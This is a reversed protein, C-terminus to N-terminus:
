GKTVMAKGTRGDMRLSCPREPRVHVCHATREVEPQQALWDWDVWGTSSGHQVKLYGVHMSVLNHFFHTGQSADVRFHELDAEVIARAESIDAWAVPIGLFRDRSGWRGPGILVYSRGIDRMKRNLEALEHQIAVTETPNFRDRDVYIFDALGETIGNGLGARTYLVVEGRSVEGVDPVDVEAHDVSLPRIQLPFFTPRRGPGPHPLVAFEMEVPGGMAGEGIVLLDQLLEALPFANYKLINAFSVIRPGRRDFPGDILQDNQFDWVSAVAQLTGHQEATRLDLNELTGDEGALLAQQGADLRIAWFDRQTGRVLDEQALLEMRPYRPCFRYVRNGEVVAKGLGLAVTAIGDAPRSPGTPYFNYSQAVGSVTPYYYNGHFDGAIEQIVVAMKEEEIHFKSGQIYERSEREFVCAFVLKIASQLFESRAQTDPHQNPLMYTKYVGAFPCSQSDELLGSSRVALPSRVHEVFWNLREILLPSLDGALFTARIADDTLGVIDRGIHNRELFEDFEATGVIATAPLTVDINPFRRRYDLTALLTNLFALGRGKGGLGGERLRVIQERELHKWTAPDVVRGRNKAREIEEFVDILFRRLHGPNAFDQVKMPQLKKAFAIEGHALLWASFHNHRAHYLVSDEPVKALLEMFNAMTTARACEPGKETRFVFDGFGLQEVIFDRLEALLTHSEKHLFHAGLAHAKDQNSKDLSQLLVPVHCGDARIQQVFRVGAADDLKGNREYQVDTIVCLLNEKFEAYFREAEAFNHALVVKPRMRMRQQRNSATVEEAILQQTQKFLQSYLAPLFASYHHVSDEIVLIIRVLRRADEVLNRKDELTKIAALFVTSDGNWLFVEDINTMRARQLQLYALDAENNLLLLVPTGPFDAKIRAALDFPSIDGIRLTTIVLDYRRNQLALLAAPASSVSTVRPPFSLALQRYESFLQESLVGDQEFVFADYFTSVLLIDRIRDTMYDRSGDSDQNFRDYYRQRLQEVNM